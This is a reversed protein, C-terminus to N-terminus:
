CGVLRISLNFCSVTSCTDPYDELEWWLKTFISMWERVDFPERLKSNGDFVEVHITDAISLWSSGSEWVSGDNAHVRDTSTTM